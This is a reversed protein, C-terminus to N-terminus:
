PCHTKIAERAINKQEDVEKESLYHVEGNAKRQRIRAKETLMKLNATARKCFEPNKKVRAETASTDVNSSDATGTSTTTGPDSTEPESNKKGRRKKSGKKILKAEVGKPPHEGYHVSGEADVWRYVAGNALTSHSSIALGMSLLVIAATKFCFRASM